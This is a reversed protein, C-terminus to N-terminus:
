QLGHRLGDAALVQQRVAAGHEHRDGAPRIGHSQQVGEPLKRRCVPPLEVDGVHIVPKPARFRIRIGVKHHLERCAIAQGAGHLRYVNGLGLLCCAEGSFM